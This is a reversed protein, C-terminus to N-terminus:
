KRTRLQIVFASLSGKDRLSVANDLDPTRAEPSQKVLNQYARLVGEVAAQDVAEQDQAKAPNQIQFAVAGVMFQFLTTPVQKMKVSKLCWAGVPGPNFTLDPVEQIFKLFRARDQDSLGGMLDAESAKALRLVRAREDLTSPGRGKAWTPIMTGMLLTAALVFRLCGRFFMM